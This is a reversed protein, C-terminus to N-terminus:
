RQSADLPTNHLQKNKTVHLAQIRSWRRLWVIYLRPVEEPASFNGTQIVGIFHFSAMCTKTTDNM